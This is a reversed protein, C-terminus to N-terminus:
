KRRKPTIKRAQGGHSITFIKKLMKEAGSIRKIARRAARGNLMNMRRNRVYPWTRGHPGPAHPNKALHYGKPAGEASAFLPRGGPLARLPQVITGGISRPAFAASAAGAAGIATTAIGVARGIPTLGAARGILGGARRILGGIGGQAGRTRNSYARLM